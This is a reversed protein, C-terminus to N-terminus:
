STPVTTEGDYSIPFVVVHRSSVLMLSMARRTRADTRLIDELRKAMKPSRCRRWGSSRRSPPFLVGSPPRLLWWSARPPGLAPPPGALIIMIM